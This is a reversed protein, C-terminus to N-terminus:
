NDLSADVFMGGSTGERSHASRKAELTKLEKRLAADEKMWIANIEEEKVDKVGDDDVLSRATVGLGRLVEDVWVGSALTVSETM